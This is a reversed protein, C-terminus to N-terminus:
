RVLAEAVIPTFIINRIGFAFRTSYGTSPRGIEAIDVWPFNFGVAAM